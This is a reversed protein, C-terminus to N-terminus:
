SHRGDGESAVISGRDPARRLWELKAIPVDRTASDAVTEKVTRAMKGICVGMFSVVVVAVV